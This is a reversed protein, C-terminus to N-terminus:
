LKYDRIEIGGQALRRESVGVYMSQLTTCSDIGISYRMPRLFGNCLHFLHYPRASLYEVAEWLYRKTGAWGSAFEFMFIDIHQKDLLGQAGQLVDLDYGEADVKLLGIRGVPNSACFEDLTTVSVEYTTPVDNPLERRTALSNCMNGYDYLTMRGPAGALAVNQFHVRRDAGFRSKYSEKAFRSPDFGYVTADPRIALLERTSTGDHFGVDVVVPASELLSPLWREGNTASMLSFGRVVTDFCRELRTIRPVLRAGVPNWFVAQLVRQKLAGM